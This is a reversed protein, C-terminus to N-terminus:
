APEVEVCVGYLDQCQGARVYARQYTLGQEIVVKQADNNMYYIKYEIM